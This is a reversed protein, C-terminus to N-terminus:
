NVLWNLVLLVLVVSQLPWCPKASLLTSSRRGRRIIASLHARLAMAQEFSWLEFGHEKVGPTGFDNSEGGLSILLQDYQYSGHETTVTQAKKDIGTVTDTVLRVNKATRVVTAFWIPYAWTGGTRYCSWTIWDYVHLIFAPWDVYDRRRCKKSISLCNRPQTFVLLGRM